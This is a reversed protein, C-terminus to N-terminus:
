YLFYFKIKFISKRQRVNDILLSETGDRLYKTHETKIISFDYHNQKQHFRRYGAPLNPSTDPRQTNQANRIVRRRAGHKTRLMIDWNQFKRKSAFLKTNHHPSYATRKSIQARYHLFTPINQWRQYLIWHFYFLSISTKPILILTLKSPRKSVLTKESSKNKM